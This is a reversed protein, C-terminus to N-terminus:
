VQKLRERIEPDPIDDFCPPCMVKNFVLYDAVAQAFCLPPEGGQVLCTAIMKGVLYFKNTAVADVNHVPAVNSPWGSFLGSSSFADKMLFSFLERRPGGDDVAEEGIFTVKFMKFTDFTPQSFARLADVFLLRRRVHIRQFDEEDM